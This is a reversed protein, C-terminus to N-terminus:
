ASLPRSVQYKIVLIASTNHTLAQAAKLTQHVFDGYAEAAIVVLDYDSTSIESAIESEPIGQRLKISGNLGAARLMDGCTALHKGPMSDKSLLEAIGSLRVFGTQTPSAISLLTVQSHHGELLPLVYDLAARDPAHGRLAFLVRKLPRPAASVLLIPTPSQTLLTELNHAECTVILDYHGATVIELVEQFTQQGADIATIQMNLAAAFTEGYHRIYSLNDAEACWILLQQPASDASSAPSAWIKDLANKIEHQHSRVPIVSTNLVSELMAIVQPHTALAMAVTISEEDEAIPIALHYYALQRPLRRALQAEIVVDQLSLFPFTTV